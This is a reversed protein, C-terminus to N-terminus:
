KSGEDRKEREVISLGITKGADTARLWCVDYLCPGDPLSRWRRRGEPDRHGSRREWVVFGNETVLGVEMLGSSVLQRSAEVSVVRIQDQGTAGGVNEAAWAVQCAMVSDCVGEALVDQMTKEVATM